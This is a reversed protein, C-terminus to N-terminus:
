RDLGSKFTAFGSELTGPDPPLGTLDLAVRRALTRKDAEPAPALGEAELRARVLRDLPSCVWTENKVAPSDPREFAKCSWRQDWSAGEETWRRLVDMQGKALEKRSYAPPMRMMENEHTIRKHLLSAEPDGPVITTGDTWKAFAVGQTDLRLEAMRTGKDPGHCRFCYDSLIPRVDRRFDITRSSESIRAVEQQEDQRGAGGFEVAMDLAGLTGMGLLEIFDDGVGELERDEVTLEKGPLAGVVGDARVLSEAVKRRM